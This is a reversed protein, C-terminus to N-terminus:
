SLLQGLQPLKVPTPISPCLISTSTAATALEAHDQHGRPLPCSLIVHTRSLFPKYPSYGPSSSSQSKMMPSIIPLRTWNKTRGTKCGHSHPLMDSPPQEGLPPPIHPRPEGSNSACPLCSKECSRGQDYIIAVYKWWSVVYKIDLHWVSMVTWVGAAHKGTVFQAPLSCNAYTRSATTHASTYGTDVFPRPWPWLWIFPGQWVWLCGVAVTARGCGCGCAQEFGNCDCSVLMRYLALPNCPMAHCPMAYSSATEKLVHLLRVCFWNQQHPANAKRQLHQARKAYSRISVISHDMALPVLSEYTKSRRPDCM